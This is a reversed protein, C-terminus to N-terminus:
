YEFQVRVDGTEGDVLTLVCINTGKPFRPPLSGQNQVIYLVIVKLGKVVETAGPDLTNWANPDTSDTSYKVLSTGANRIDLFNCDIPAVVPVAVNAILSYQRVQFSKSYPPM